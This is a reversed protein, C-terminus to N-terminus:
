SKKYKNLVTQNYKIIERVNQLHVTLIGDTYDGIRGEIKNELVKFHEKTKSIDISESNLYDHAAKYTAKTAKSAINKRARTLNTAMEVRNTENSVKNILGNIVKSGWKNKNLKSAANYSIKTIKSANQALLKGQKAFKLGKAIGNIAFKSGASAIPGLPTISLVSLALEQREEEEIQKSRAKDDKILEQIKRSVEDSLLIRDLDYFSKLEKLPIDFEKSYSANVDELEGILDFYVMNIYIDKTILSDIARKNEQALYTNYEEQSTAYIKKIEWQDILNRYVAVQDEITKGLTVQLEERNKEILNLTQSNYNNISLELEKTDANENIGFARKDAHDNSSCSLEMLTFLISTIYLIKIKM